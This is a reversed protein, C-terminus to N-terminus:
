RKNNIIESKVGSVRNWGGGGGGSDEEEVGGCVSTRRVEGRNNGRRGGRGTQLTLIMFSACYDYCETVYM